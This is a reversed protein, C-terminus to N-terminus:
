SSAKKAEQWLELMFKNDQGKLNDYGKQKSIIKLSQMRKNFKDTTKALTQEVDFGSYICLSIASHLLDGIEEQVRHNPEQEKVAALIEHCESIAWEIAIEQNPWDFGFERADNESKILEELSKSM